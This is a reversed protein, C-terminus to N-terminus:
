KCIKTLFYDEILDSLEFKLSENLRKGDLKPLGGNFNCEYINNKYEIKYNTYFDYMKHSLIKFKSM